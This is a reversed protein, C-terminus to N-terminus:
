AEWVIEWQHGDPDAFNIAYWWPDNQTKEIRRAGADLAKQLISDVEQKSCASHSIIFGQEDNESGNTDVSSGAFKKREYLVLELGNNLKFLAHNEAGTKIGKTPLGLGEKYFAFARQLDKTPIRICNIKPKM